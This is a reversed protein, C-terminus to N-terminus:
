LEKSLVQMMQDELIQMIQPSPLKSANTKDFFELYPIAILTLKTFVVFRRIPWDRFVSVTLKGPEILGLYIEM